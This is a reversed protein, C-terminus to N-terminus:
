HMAAPPLQNSAWPKPGFSHHRIIGGRGAGEHGKNFPGDAIEQQKLVIDSSFEHFPRSGIRRLIEDLRPAWWCSKSIKNM